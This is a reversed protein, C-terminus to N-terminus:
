GGMGHQNTCASSPLYTPSKLDPLVRSDLRFLVLAPFPRLYIGSVLGGVTGDSLERIGRLWPIGFWGRM